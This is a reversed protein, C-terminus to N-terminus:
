SGSGVSGGEVPPGPSPSSLDLFKLEATRILDASTKMMEQISLITPESSEVAIDSADEFDLGESQFWDVTKDSNTNNSNSNNNNTNVLQTDYENVSLQGINVAKLREGDLVKLKPFHSVIQTKYDDDRCATNTNNNSATSVTTVTLTKLLPLKTSLKVLDGLSSVRNGSLDLHELHVLDGINDIQAIQNNSLRLSKLCPLVIASDSQNPLSTLLPLSEINNNSLDLESLNICRSLIPDLSDIKLSALSL